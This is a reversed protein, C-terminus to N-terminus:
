ENAILGSHREVRQLVTKQLISKDGTHVLTFWESARTVGTYLLERTMIRSHHPPLILATHSFESGQSKHVTLAFVTEVDRLRSPLVWRIGDSGEEDPFAIRLASCGGETPLRLTIGIDGNMLGLTYDNRIVMVPRGFYWGDRASILGEQHLSEAILTNLADVGFAGKRVGALVQFSSHAELVKMAWAAFASPQADRSPEEQHLKELYHRYGYRREEKSFLHGEIVLRQLPKIDRDVLQVEAIDRYGETWLSNLAHLDSDRITRGLAGIGSEEKFRHSDRLMIIAQDLPTSDPDVMGEPLAEGTVKLLWEGMEYSYHGKHARQCMEGLITGAEVSALQDKDGLLILRASAPLALLVAHMMELDIMSAEDIVLVDVPLPHHQHHRFRRSGSQYGLLRHLTLVKQPIAELANGANQSPDLAWQRMSKSISTRLRQAAKGTPAALQIRLPTPHKQLESEESRISQLLALLKLVSTTKGTGPGGTIITFWQRAALACAIKQWHIQGIGPRNFLHNLRLPLAHDLTADSHGIFRGLREDIARRVGKEYAWYRRFYLRGRDLVLPTSGAGAGLLTQHQLRKAWLDATLGKLLIDLVQEFPPNIGLMETMPPIHLVESPNLLTAKLDLCVHGRGLQHSLLASSLILLPPAEPCEKFLFSSFALDLPRIWHRRRWERLLAIVGESQELVTDLDPELAEPKTTM